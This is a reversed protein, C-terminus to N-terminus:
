QKAPADLDKLVYQFFLFALGAGILQALIFGAAHIPETQKTLTTALTVAPNYHGGGLYIVAALAVAIPIASGQKLIVSLFVFTGILEILAQAFM